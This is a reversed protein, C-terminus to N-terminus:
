LKKQIVLKETLHSFEKETFVPSIKMTKEIIEFLIYEDDGFYFRYKNNGLNLVYEVNVDKQTKQDSGFLVASHEEKLFKKKVLKLLNDLVENVPLSRIAREEIMNMFYSLNFFRFFKYMFSKELIDDLLNASANAGSFASGVVAASGILSLSKGLFKNKGMATYIKDREQLILLITDYIIIFILLINLM